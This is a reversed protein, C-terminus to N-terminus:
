ASKKLPFALPITFKMGNDMTLTCGTNENISLEVGSLTVLLGQRPDIILKATEEGIKFDLSLNMAGQASFSVENQPSNKEFDLVEALEEETIEETVEQTTEATIMEALEADIKEQLSVPKEEMTEFEKELDERESMIEKLESNSLNTDDSM